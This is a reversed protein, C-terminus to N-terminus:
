PEGVQNWRLIAPREREHGLVSTAATDLAFRAGDSPLLGIWRAALARLLHGHSFVAVDGDASALEAIVADVRRGVGDATEGGPAGDTWLSWFPRMARIEATTRGEYDGYDWEALDDRRRATRELGALRCTETARRLPSTLVLAFRRRALRPGLREAQLRGAATLDIDTRGTHRGSRSWETEGHRVLVVEHGREGM